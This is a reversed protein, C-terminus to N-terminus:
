GIWRRLRVESMSFGRDEFFALSPDNFAWVGTQLDQIGESRACEVAASLMASAHGRRQYAPGVSIHDIQLWRRATCFADEPRERLAALLYGAAVDEEEAVYARTEERSLIERFFGEAEEVTAMKFFAPEAEVHLEQVLRNLRALSPVDALVAARVSM